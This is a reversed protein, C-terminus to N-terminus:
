FLDKSFSLFFFFAALINGIQVLFYTFFTNNWM